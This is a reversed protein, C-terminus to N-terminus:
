RRKRDLTVVPGRGMAILGIKRQNLDLIVIQNGLQYVVEDGPLVTGYRSEWALFPTELGASLFKGTKKNEGSVGVTPWFAIDVKWNRDNEPRLDLPPGFDHPWPLTNYKYWGEQPDAAPGFQKEVVCTQRQNAGEVWLDFGHKDSSPRLFLRKTEKGFPSEQVWQLGTGDPLVRYIAGRQPSIFYVVADRSKVLSMTKDTTVASFLGTGSVLYFWPLLLIYSATQAYVSARFSSRFMSASKYGGRRLAWAYFPWELIISALFSAAVALWIFWRFNYINVYGPGAGYPVSFRSTWGVLLFGAWASFYNALITVGVIRMYKVKFFRSIVAAEIVGIIANGLLMHFMGAWMLATGADARADVPIALLFVAYIM